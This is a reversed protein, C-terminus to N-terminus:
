DVNFDIGAGISLGETEKKEMVRIHDKSNFCYYVRNSLGEFKGEYEQSYMKASLQRKAAKIEKEPLVDSSFWHYYCWEKDNSNERYAGIIPQIEPIEGGCAYEALDYFFNMGDPVGELIAFGNTDSLVPRINSSWAEEKIDAM